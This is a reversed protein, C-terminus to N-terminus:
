NGNYEILPYTHFILGDRDVVITGRSLTWGSKYVDQEGVRLTHITYTGNKLDLKFPTTEKNCLYVNAYRSNPIGGGGSWRDSDDWDGGVYRYHESAISKFSVALFLLILQLTKKALITLM